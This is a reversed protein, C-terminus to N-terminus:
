GHTDAETRQKHPASLHVGHGGDTPNRLWYHRWNGFTVARELHYGHGRLAWMCTAILKRTPSTM